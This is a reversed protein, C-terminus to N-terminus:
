PKKIKWSKSTKIKSSKSINKSKSKEIKPLYLKEIKRSRKKLKEIKRSKTKRTKGKFFEFKPLTAYFDVFFDQLYFQILQIWFRSTNIAESCSQLRVDLIESFNKIFLVTFAEPPQFSDFFNTQFNELISQFIDDIENKTKGKFFQFRPSTASIKRLEPFYPPVLIIFFITNICFDYM